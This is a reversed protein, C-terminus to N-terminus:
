ASQGSQNIISFHVLPPAVLPQTAKAAPQPQVDMISLPVRVKGRLGRELTNEVMALQGLNSRIEMESGDQGM